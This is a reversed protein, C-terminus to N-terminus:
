QPKKARVLEIPNLPESHASLAIPLRRAEADSVDQVFALLTKLGALRCARLRREGDVLEYRDGNPRVIAPQRQGFRRIDDALSRLKEEGFGLRPQFPGPDVLRVDLRVAYTGDLSVLDEPDAMPGNGAVIPQEAKKCKASSV